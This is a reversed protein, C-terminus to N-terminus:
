RIKKRKFRVCLLLERNTFVAEPEVFKSAYGESRVEELGQEDEIWHRMERGAARLVAMRLASNDRHRGDWGATWTVAAVKGTRYIDDLGWKRVVYDTDEVLVSGGDIAVSEISVVPTYPLYLKNADADIKRIRVDETFERVTVPRGCWAELSGQCLDIIEAAVVSATSDFDARMYTELEGVTVVYEDAM